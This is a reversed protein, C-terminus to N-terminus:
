LPFATVFRPRSDSTEIIWVTRLGAMRGGPPMLSGDVVYKTGHLTSETEVVEHTRAIDLLGSELLVVNEDHYGLGRFYKAKAKGIPHTESLLYGTLKEPPVWASDSNPLQM